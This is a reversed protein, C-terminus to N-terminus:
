CEEEVVKLRCYYGPAKLAPAGDKSTLIEHLMYPLTKYLTKHCSSKPVPMMVAIGGTITIYPNLSDPIEITIKECVDTPIVGYVIENEHGLIGYCAYIETKM